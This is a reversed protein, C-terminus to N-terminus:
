RLYFILTISSGTRPQNLLRSSINMTPLAVTQHCPVLTVNQYERPLKTLQGIRTNQNFDNSRTPHSATGNRKEFDLLVTHSLKTWGIWSTITVSMPTTTIRKKSLNILVVVRWCGSTHRRTHFPDPFVRASTLKVLQSIASCNTTSIIAPRPLNHHTSTTRALPTLQVHKSSCPVFM